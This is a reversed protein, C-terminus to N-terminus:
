VRLATGLAELFASTDAYYNPYARRLGRASDVWVLVADFQESQPSTELAAVAANAENSDWYGTVKITNGSVDLALLLWKADTTNRKPLQKLASTWGRLRRRVQLAKTYDRLERILESQDSPTGAVLPTNERIALASGMLSFFRRWEQPGAGFKVPTRTFTTVTEVATAFAHQLQSRLQIEIRHGNWAENKEARANYRGVVHIGRYGDSKPNHIYDYCKMGGESQFLDDHRDRYLEYLREVATINSVIARCGGLDQMQSLKMRPERALKNMVSSLRKLRQAIIARPEVRKARQALGMRFTLLPMAHSARWNHIVGWAAGLNLPQPAEDKWWPVLLEGVRDIEGKGYERKIWDAMDNRPFSKPLHEPDRNNWDYLSDQYRTPKNWVPARRPGQGAASDRAQVVGM